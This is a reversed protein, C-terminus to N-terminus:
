DFLVKELLQTLEESILCSRLKEDNKLDLVVNKINELTENNDKGTFPSFGGTVLEYIMVGLSWVDISFDYLQSESVEPSLYDITGCLTQRKNDISQCSWGFDSIKCNFSQDLLINELKLDRHIINRKKIFDLAKAIRFM